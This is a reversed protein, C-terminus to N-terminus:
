PCLCIRFSSMTDTLMLGRSSRMRTWVRSASCVVAEPRTMGSVALSFGWSPLTRATPGPRPGKPSSAPPRAHPREEAEFALAAERVHKHLLGRGRLHHAAGAADVLSLGGDPAAGCHCPLCRTVLLPAIQRDFDIVPAAPEDARGHPSMASAAAVAFLILTFPRFSM